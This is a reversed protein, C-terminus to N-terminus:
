SFVPDEQRFCVWFSGGVATSHATSGSVPADCLRRFAGSRLESRCRLLQCPRDEGGPCRGLGTGRMLQRGGVFSCRPGLEQEETYRRVAPVSALVEVAACYCREAWLTQTKSAGRRTVSGHRSMSSRGFPINSKARSHCTFLGSSPIDPFHPLPSATREKM